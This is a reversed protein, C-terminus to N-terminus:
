PYESTGTDRARDPKSLHAPVFGNAEADRLCRERSLFIESVQLLTGSDDFLRWRWKKKPGNTRARDPKIEWRM